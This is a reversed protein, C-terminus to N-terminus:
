ATAGLHGPGLRAMIGAERLFHLTHAATEQGALWTLDDPTDIDRFFAHMRLRDNQIDRQEAAALHKSASDTGFQFPIADPPSCMLANTGGDRIAPCISLGGKHRELLQEIDAATVTPMDGPMVLVSRAGAAAIQRVAANLGDSLEGEDVDAIVRHGLKAALEAVLPDSTLVAIRDIGRAQEMATLVDLLMAQSLLACEPPQLVKALRTKARALSKVPILAWIENMQGAGDAM